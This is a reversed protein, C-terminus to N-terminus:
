YVLWRLLSNANWSFCIMFGRGELNLLEQYAMKGFGWIRVGQDEEGRVVVPSFFRQRASLNKAMKISEEDGQRYLDRVYSDM